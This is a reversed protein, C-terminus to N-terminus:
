VVIGSSAKISCKKTRDSECQQNLNLFAIVNAKSLAILCIYTLQYFHSRPKPYSLLPHYGNDPQNFKLIAITKAKSIAIL